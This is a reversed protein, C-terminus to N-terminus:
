KGRGEPRKDRERGDRGREAWSNLRGLASAARNPAVDGKDHRQGRSEDKEGRRGRRKAIVRYPSPSRSRGRDKERPNEVVIEVKTAVETRGDIQRDKSLLETHDLESSRESQPLRSLVAEKQM